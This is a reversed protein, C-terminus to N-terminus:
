CCPLDEAPTTVHGHKSLVECHPLLRAEIMTLSRVADYHLQAELVTSLCLMVTVDALSQTVADNLCRLVTIAAHLGSIEPKGPIPDSSLLKTCGLCAAPFPQAAQQRWPREAASHTHM